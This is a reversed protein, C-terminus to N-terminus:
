LYKRIKRWSRGDLKAWDKPSKGYDIMVRLNDFDGGHNLLMDEMSQIARDINKKGKPNTEINFSFGDSPMGAFAGRIWGDKLIKSLFETDFSDATDYGLRRAMRKYKPIRRAIWQLHHGRDIWIIEGEPTLWFKRNTWAAEVLLEWVEKLLELKRDMQEVWQKRTMLSPCVTM